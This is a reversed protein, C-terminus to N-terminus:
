IKIYKQWLDLENKAIILKNAVDSKKFEKRTVRLSDMLEMYEKCHYHVPWVKGVGASM